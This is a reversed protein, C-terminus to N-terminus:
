AIPKHMWVVERGDATLDRRTESYGHKRYYAQNSEMKANTVLTLRPLGVERAKQEAFGLLREGIGQRQYDPHVAINDIYLSGSSPWIVLVAAIQKGDMLVYVFRQSILQPYDALMPLPKRGIVAIWKSYAADVVRSVAESEDVEALRMKFDQVGPM